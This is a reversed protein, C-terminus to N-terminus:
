KRKAMKALQSVSKLPYAETSQTKIVKLPRADMFSRIAGQAKRFTDVWMATTTSIAAKQLLYNRLAVAAFEGPADPLGSTMVDCFRKLTDLEDQHYYWARGVAALVVANRLNKGRPGAHIAWEAAARHGAVMELKAAYSARKQDAHPGGIAIARATAVLEVSLNKDTGSIRGADVLSRGLGTDINLGDKRSLGALVLFEQTTGSEVVAWLRHQGDAVEGDDYFSIPVPCRTWLGQRMDEAYKEVVGDRLKRNGKNKNLWAQAKAPTVREFLSSLETAM